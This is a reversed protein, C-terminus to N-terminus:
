SLVELKKVRSVLWREIKGRIEERSAAWAARSASWAASYAAWAASFAAWAASSAADSAASYAADSAASYAADSAADSAARNEESPDQLWARAADVARRPRDDGPHAQEYLPLVLEASYIALVVSDAKSWRYLKVARMGSHVSKDSESASEGRVEVRALVGGQVYSLADLIRDSAHYGRSCLRVPLVEPQWANLEWATEGHQSRILGPSPELLFKWARPYSM